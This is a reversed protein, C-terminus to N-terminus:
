RHAKPEPSSFIRMIDMMTLPLKSNPNDIALIFVEHRAKTERDLKNRLTVNGYQDIAFQNLPDSKQQIHYSCISDLSLFFHATIRSFWDEPNRVLGSM